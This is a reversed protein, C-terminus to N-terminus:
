LKSFFSISPAFFYEGELLTVVPDYRFKIGSGYLGIQNAARRPLQAVVTDAGGALQNAWAGQIAEFQEAINAQCCLFMLGVDDSSAGASEPDVVVAGAESLVPRGDEGYKLKPGFVTARRVIRRGRTYSDRPNVKRAHAHMPCVSQDGYVFDNYDATADLPHGDLKRGILRDAVDDRTADSGDPLPSREAALRAAQQYFGAVDQRLKRYVVYSGYAKGSGGTGGNPDEALALSLPAFSSWKTGAVSAAAGELKKRADLDRQFFLPQSISDRYGFPEIPYKKTAHRLVYGAQERVVVGRGAFYRLITARLASWHVQEPDYGVTYLVHPAFSTLAPKPDNLRRAESLSEDRRAMGQQFAPDSPKKFRDPLLDYCRASLMLNTSFAPRAPASKEAARAARKEARRARSRSEPELAFLDGPVDGLEGRALDRLLAPVDVRTDLELFFYHTNPQGHSSLVNCQLDALLGQSEPKDEDLPARHNQLADSANTMPVEKM